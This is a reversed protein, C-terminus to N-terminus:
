PCLKIELLEFAKKQISNLNPYKIFEADGTVISRCTVRAISALNKLLSRFSHAPLQEETQKTAKKAKVKKSPETPEVPNDRKEKQAALEEDRFLIPALSKEMHWQVYYALMCVFIHAKVMEELRHFIPRVHLSTTKMGRFVKEVEALLRYKKKHFNCILM